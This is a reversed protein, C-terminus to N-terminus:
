IKRLVCTVWADGDPSLDIILAKGTIAHTLSLTDSKNSIKMDRNEIHFNWQHMGDWNANLAENAAHETVIIGGRKTVAIMQMFAEVPDYSHDLTNKAYVLDFSEDPFKETLKESECKQTKIIPLGKPFPLQDYYDALADVATLDIQKGNLYKGLATMPGAGVDLIKPTKTTLHELWKKASGGLEANPDTRYKFDDPWDSGNTNIWQTWFYVESPISNKWNERDMKTEM